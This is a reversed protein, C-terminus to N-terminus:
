FSCYCWVVLILSSVRLQLFIHVKQTNSDHYIASNIEVSISCLGHDCNYTIFNELIQSLALDLDINKENKEQKEEEEEEKIVHQVDFYSHM